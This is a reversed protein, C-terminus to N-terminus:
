VYDIQKGIISDKSYKKIVKELLKDLKEKLYNKDYIFIVDEVIITLSKQEVKSSLDSAKVDSITKTKGLIIGYFDTTSGSLQSYIQTIICSNFYLKYSNNQKIM